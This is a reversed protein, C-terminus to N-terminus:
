FLSPQPPPRRRTKGFQRCTEDVHHDHCLTELGDLHHHCGAEAHRGLVPTRHNVELRSRSGCGPVQCTYEDRRLAAHRADTWFHNVAYARSHEDSCWRRRRGRLPGGCWNCRGPEGNWEVLTCALLDLITLGAM